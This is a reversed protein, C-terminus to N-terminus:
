AEQDGVIPVLADEAAEQYDRVTGSETSMEEIRDSELWIQAVAKADRDSYYRAIV